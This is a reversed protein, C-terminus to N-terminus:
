PGVFGGNQQCVTPLSRNRRFRGCYTGPRAGGPRKDAESYCLYCVGRNMRGAHKSQPHDCYCLVADLSDGKHENALCTFETGCVCPEDDGSEVPQDIMDSV